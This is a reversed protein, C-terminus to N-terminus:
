ERVKIRNRRRSRRRKRVAGQQQPVECRSGDSQRGKHARIRRRFRVRVFRGTYDETTKDRGREGGGGDGVVREDTRSLRDGGGSGDCESALRGQDSPRDYRRGREEFVGNEYGLERARRVIDARCELWSEHSGFGGWPAWHRAWWCGITYPDAYGVIEAFKVLWVEAIDYVQRQNKVRDVDEALADVVVQTELARLGWGRDLTHASDADRGLDPAPDGHM